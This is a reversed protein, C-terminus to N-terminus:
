TISIIPNYPNNPDYPYPQAPQIIYVPYYVPRQELAQIRRELEQLKTEKEM